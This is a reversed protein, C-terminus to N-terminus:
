FLDEKLEDKLSIEIEEFKSTDINQDKKIEDLLALRIKHKEDLFQNERFLIKRIFSVIIFLLYAVVFACIMTGIGNIFDFVGGYM